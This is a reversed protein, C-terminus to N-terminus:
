HDGRKLESLYENIPAKTKENGADDQVVPTDIGHSVAKNKASEGLIEVEDQEDREFMEVVYNFNETIYEPDKDALVKQVYTKKDESLGQTKQELILIAEAKKARKNLEVNETVTQNVQKKLNDIQSKGDLLAERIQETVYSSDISIIKKINEVMTRAQFNQVAETLTKTPIVKELYLDMYNSLENVLSDRLSVAEQVMQQRYKKVVFKLKECHNLDQKEVVTKLKNTHDIDVAELLKELKGTHEDDQAILAQEVELTLREKIKEEAKENVATTFATDIAALTDETLIDGGAKKLIEKIDM